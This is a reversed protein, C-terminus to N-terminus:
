VSLRNLIMSSEAKLLRATNHIHCGFVMAVMEVASHNVFRVWFILGVNIRDNSFKPKVDANGIVGGILYQSASM